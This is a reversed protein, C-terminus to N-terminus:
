MRIFDMSAYGRTRACVEYGERHGDDNTNGEITTIVEPEADVVIGTHIWDTATKRVLFFSGSTIRTRDAASAGQLFMGHKKASTALADCSFSPEIPLSRGLRECAQTLCFCAFGACWAWETGEHGHM